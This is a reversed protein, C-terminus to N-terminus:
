ISPVLCLGLQSYVRDSHDGRTPLSEWVVSLLKGAQRPGFEFSVKVKEKRTKNTQKNTQKRLCPKDSNQLRGQFEVRYGLSAEFECLNVQRQRGLAPPM